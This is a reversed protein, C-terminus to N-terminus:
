AYMYYYLNKKDAWKNEPFGPMDIDQEEHAVGGLWLQGDHRLPAFTGAEVVVQVNNLGLKLHDLKYVDGALCGLSHLSNNSHSSM